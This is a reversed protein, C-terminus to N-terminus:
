TGDFGWYTLDQHWSVFKVSKPEMIIYTVNYLMVDPGLIAEVVDVLAPHTALELPSKLVTHVKSHYHLDHGMEREASELHGRHDAAEEASVVPIASVFGHDWYAQAHKQSEPSAM